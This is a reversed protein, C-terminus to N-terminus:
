GIQQTLDDTSCIESSIKGNSTLNGPLDITYVEGNMGRTHPSLAHILRSIIKWGM